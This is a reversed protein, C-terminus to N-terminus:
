EKIEKYLYEVKDLSKIVRRGISGWEYTTPTFRGM